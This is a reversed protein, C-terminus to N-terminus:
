CFITENFGLLTSNQCFITINCGGFTCVHEVLPWKWVGAYQVRLFSLVMVLGWGVLSFSWKDVICCEGMSVCNVSKYCRDVVWVTSALEKRKAGFETFRQRSLLTKQVVINYYYAVIKYYYAVLLTKGNVFNQVDKLFATNEWVYLWLITAWTVGSEQFSKCFKTFLLVKKHCLIVLNNNLFVWCLLPSPSRLELLTRRKEVGQCWKGCRVLWCRVVIVSAMDLYMSPIM